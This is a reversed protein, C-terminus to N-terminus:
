GRRRRSSNMEVADRTPVRLGPDGGREAVIQLLIAQENEAHFAKGKRPWVHARARDTGVTLDHGYGGPEDARASAEDAIDAALDVLAARVGPSRRISNFESRRIELRGM